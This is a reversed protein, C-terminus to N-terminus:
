KALGLWNARDDGLATLRDHCEKKAIQIFENVQEKTKCQGFAIADRGLQNADEFIDNNLGQHMMSAM